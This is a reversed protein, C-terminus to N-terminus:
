RPNMGNANRCLFLLFSHLHKTNLIPSPSESFSLDRDFGDKVGHRQEPSGDKSGLEM